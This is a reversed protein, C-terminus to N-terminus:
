KDEKQLAELFEKLRLVLLQPFTIDRLVDFHSDDSVIYTAGAAFACDVFKNDDPDALILNWHYYTNVQVVNESKVILDVVNKALSPTTKKAIIEEYEELIETSVCLVYRGDQFGKWVPYANGQRSLSALLCNTDLVIRRNPM